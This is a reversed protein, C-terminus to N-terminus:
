LVLAMCQPIKLNFFFVLGTTNLVVEKRRRIIVVIFFFVFFVNIDFLSFLLSEAFVILLRISVCSCTCVYDLYLFLSGLPGKDSSNDGCSILSQLLLTAYKFLPLFRFAFLTSPLIRRRLLSFFVRRERRFITRVNTLVRRHM